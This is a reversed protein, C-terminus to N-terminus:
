DNLIPENIENDEFFKMLLFLNWISYINSDPNLEFQKLKSDIVDKNIISYVKLNLIIKKISKYTDEKTVWDTIPFGFGKKHMETYEPLLHSLFTRLPKKGEIASIKLNDNTQLAEEALDFDLLPSRTEISYYMSARDNKVLIDGQLYNNIDNNAMQKIDVKSGTLQSIMQIHEINLVSQNDSQSLFSEYVSVLNNQKCLKIIQNLRIDFQRLDFRKFQPIQKILNQFEKIKLLNLFPKLLWKYKFITIVKPWNVYRNYGLWFEDGGDGTLLVRINKSNVVKNLHITPIASPDAFPEDYIKYYNTIVNDFDSPTMKIITHKLGLNKAIEVAANEESHNPDDYTITFAQPKIGFDKSAVAAVLSSDVGSSLQVGVPVDAVLRRNVATKLKSYIQEYKNDSEFTPGFPIQKLDFYKEINLELSNLDLKIINGGPLKKIEEFISQDIPTYNYKLYHNLATKSIYNKNIHTTSQITKITSALTFENNVTSYYIPKKGFPDSAIIAKGLNLDVFCFAFMGKLEFIREPFQSLFDFLLLSDSNYSKNPFHLEGLEKYNYIEGNFSLLRGQSVIPQNSAPNNVDLIGLRTHAITVYKDTYKLRNMSQNDPGRKKLSDLVLDASKDTKSVHLYIGCM